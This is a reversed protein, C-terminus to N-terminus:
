AIAPSSFISILWWAVTIWIVIVIAAGLKSRPREQGEAIWNDARSRCENLLSAPMLRIMLWLGAPVIILEDLYGIVPLFDPILDIPSLAYAIILYGLARLWLPTRQDRVAFWLAYTDRRVRAAWDRLAAWM